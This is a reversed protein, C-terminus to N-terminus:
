QSLVEVFGHDFFADRTLISVQKKTPMVAGKSTWNEADVPVRSIDLAEHWKFCITLYASLGSDLLLCLFSLEFQRAPRRSAPPRTLVTVLQFIVFCFPVM